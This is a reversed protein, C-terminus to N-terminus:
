LAPVRYPQAVVVRRPWPQRGLLQLQLQVPDPPEAGTM